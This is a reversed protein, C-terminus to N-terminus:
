RLGDDVGPVDGPKRVRGRTQMQRIMFLWLVGLLILPAWTGLVQLPWSSETGSDKFWIEAGKSRLSALMTEQSHPVIVQFTKGETRYQARARNGSITVRVVDGADVDSMFQSYSIEPIARQQTSSTKVVQWLLLSSLGIVFWFVVAKITKSPV